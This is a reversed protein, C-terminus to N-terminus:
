LIYQLAGLTDSNILPFILFKKKLNVTKIWQNKTVTNPGLATCWFFIDTMLSTFFLCIFMFLIQKLVPTFHLEPFSYSIFIPTLTLPCVGVGFHLWLASHCYLVSSPPSSPNPPLHSWARYGPPHYYVQLWSLSFPWQFLRGLGWNVFEIYVYMICVAKVWGGLLIM